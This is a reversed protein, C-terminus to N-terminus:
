DGILLYGNVLKLKTRGAVCGLVCLCVHSRIITYGFLQKLVVRFIPYFMGVPLGHQGSLIATNILLIFFSAAHFSTHNFIM